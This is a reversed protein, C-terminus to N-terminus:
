FFKNVLSSNVSVNIRRNVQNNEKEIENREIKKIDLIKNKLQEKLSFVLTLNEKETELTNFFSFDTNKLVVLSFMEQYNFLPNKEMKHCYIQYENIINNFIRIDTIYAGLIILKKPDLSKFINDNNKESQLKLLMDGINLANAYPIIPICFDFFKVLEISTKNLSTNCFTDGRVSYIFTIKDSGLNEFYTNLIQNLERLHLFVEENNYRDIDEFIIIKYNTHIFFNIIEDISESLYNEQRNRNIEAELFKASIKGSEFHSILFSILKAKTFHIISYITSIIFVILSIIRGVLNSLNNINDKIYKEQDNEVLKREVVKIIGHKALDSNRFLSFAIIAIISILLFYIARKLNKKRESEKEEIRNLRSDPLESGDVSYLMQKLICKEIEESKTDSDKSSLNGLSITLKQNRTSIKNAIDNLIIKKNNSKITISYNDNNFDKKIKIKHNDSFSFHFRHRKGNRNEQITADYDFRESIGKKEYWNFFSKIFSSKGAGYNGIIGINHIKPNEIRKKLENFLEEDLLDEKPLFDNLELM